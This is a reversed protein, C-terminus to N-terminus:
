PALAFTSAAVLGSWRSGGIQRGLVYAGSSAVLACIVFVVSMGVIASGSILTALGSVVATLPPYFLGLPYGFGNAFDAYWDPVLTGTAFISPYIAARLLHNDGDQTQPLGGILLPVLALLGPVLALLWEALTSLLSIRQSEPTSRVLDPKMAIM